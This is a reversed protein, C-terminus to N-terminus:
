GAHSEPSVVTLSRHPELTLATNFAYTGNADASAFRRPRIGPGSAGPSPFDLRSHLDRENPSNCSTCTPNNVGLCPERNPREPLLCVGAARPQGTELCVLGGVGERVM